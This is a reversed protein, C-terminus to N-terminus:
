LALAVWDAVVKHGVNRELALLARDVAGFARVARERDFADALRALEGDLDANALREPGADTAVVEVDRLLSAMARLRDAIQARTASGSSKKGEGKGAAGRALLAQAAALRSAPSSSRAVLSLMEGAVRRAETAGGELQEIAQGLSGGGQSAAARADDASVGRVRELFAAIEAAGLPGFRLRPCRSRITPLLADPRSTLLTFVTGSPPEELVKLLANQAETELADAEDIVVLRRRGDFPRYASAAIVARVPDIKISGKDDPRLIRFCDAAADVGQRASREVREIRRCSACEGCADIDLGPAQGARDAGAPTVPATCNLVRALAAATTFKGVGAPGAFVLSPPLTDRAVARTLLRVVSRHGIIDRFPM